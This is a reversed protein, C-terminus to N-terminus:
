NKYGLQEHANGFLDTYLANHNENAILPWQSQGVKPATVHSPLRLRNRQIQAIDHKAILELACILRIGTFGIRKLIRAWVSHFDSIVDELKIELCNDFSPWSLMSHITIFAIGNMEFVLGKDENTEKLREQYNASGILLLMRNVWSEFVKSDLLPSKWIDFDVASPNSIHLWEENSLLHYRFGSVIVERPDRIVHIVVDYQNLERLNFFGNMRCEFQDSSFGNLDRIVRQVMVTGTKHHTVFLIKKKSHENRILMPFRKTFHRILRGRVKFFARGFSGQSTIIKSM